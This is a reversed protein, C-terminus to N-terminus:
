SAGKGLLVAPITKLIIALDKMFCRKEIYELDMEIQEDFSLNNRGSAQWICTIGQKVLVRQRQYDNYKEYESVLAPRPGIIAMDGKLVNFFQPIEDISTKRLFKGFTTIRPDHKMKFTIGNTENESALNKLEKDAGVRMSRFKYFKFIKGDKGVRESIYFVPGKSTLKVLIAIIIYLWSLVIITLLSVIIDSLRKVFSYIPKTKFSVMIRQESEM